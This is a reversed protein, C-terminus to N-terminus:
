KPCSNESQLKLRYALKPSLENGEKKMSRKWQSHSGGLMRLGMGGITIFTCSCVTFKVCVCVCVCVCLGSNREAQRDAMVFPLLMKKQRQEHAVRSKAFGPIM